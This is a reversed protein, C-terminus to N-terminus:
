PKVIGVLAGQGQHMLPAPLTPVWLAQQLGEGM